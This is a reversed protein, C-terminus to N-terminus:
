RSYVRNAAHKIARLVDDVESLRQAGLEGTQHGHRMLQNLNIGLANLERLVAKGEPDRRTGAVTGAEAFRRFMLDHAFNSLSVGRRAAEEALESRETQTAHVRIPADHPEETNSQKRRAL